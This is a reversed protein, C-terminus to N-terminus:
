AHTCVHTHQPPSKTGARCVAWAPRESRSNWIQPSVGGPDGPIGAGPLRGGHLSPGLNGLIHRKRNQLTTNLHISASGGRRHGCQPSCLKGSAGLSTLLLALCSRVGEPGHPVRPLFAPGSDSHGLLNRPPSPLSYLLCYTAPLLARVPCEM